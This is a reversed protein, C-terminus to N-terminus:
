TPGGETVKNVGQLAASRAKAEESQIGVAHQVQMKQMEMAHKQKTAELDLVTGIMDAKAKGAEADAKVKAAGAKIQEAQVKPDPQAPPPPQAAIKKLQAVYQDFVGEMESAGKLGATMQQAMEIVFQVTAQAGGPVSSMLQVFPIVGQFYIALTNAFEFREQKLAAFDQLSVSDPNVSIRFQFDPQQILQVAAQALEADPTRMINSREIITQPSFHKSIIEAKIKQTDSAFRAFEDQLTQVRVSAFRAKIAQETATAQEAAQGRMIDSMGTIQYLLGILETRYERLKDLAMVIMELPLWDIAGKVGGKEAFAAWADVAILENNGTQSILRAIELNNKDYVGAVRICQELLTIRTFVTDIEDYLDQALVFDPLPMLKSTTLNAFMPRPFPWFGELELPDEKQDLIESAGELYWYVTRTEKDWIETVICRDLPDKVATPDDATTPNKRNATWADEKKPFRKLFEEEAMPADFSWWRLDAYTRCPSWRQDKWYVYDVCVQEDPRLEQEPVAPALESGDPDVQAPLGPKTETEGIEYRLRVSGLGIRLRDGLAHRLAEQQTDGDDELDTNLIRELMESGVRAQDDESDAFRREVGVEPTKGFLLAEMNQTNATFMNLRTDTSDDGRDDVYRKIIKEARKWWKEQNSKAAALEKAWLRALGAPTQDARDTTSIPAPTDPM